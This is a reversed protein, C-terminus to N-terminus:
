LQLTLQRQRYEERTNLAPKLKAIHLAELTLLNNEDFSRDIVKVNMDMNAGCERLHARVPASARKYGQLRTQLHRTM